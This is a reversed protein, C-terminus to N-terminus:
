VEHLVKLCNAYYSAFSRSPRYRCSSFTGASGLIAQRLSAKAAGVRLYPPVSLNDGKQDCRGWAGTSSRQATGVCGSVHRRLIYWPVEIKEAPENLWSRGSRRM